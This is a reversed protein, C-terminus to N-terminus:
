KEEKIPCTFGGTIKGYAKQMIERLEAKRNEEVIFSDHIALIPIERSTFDKVVELAIRSDMRMLEGGIRKCFHQAIQPHAVKFKEVLEATSTGIAKLTLYLNYDEHLTHNGVSVAIRLSDSNILALLLHKAFPRLGPYDQIIARYPDDDYQIGELTYLLRPQMGSFDLEVTKQQNIRIQRREEKELSQYGGKSNYLRGGEKFSCNNFIAYLDTNLKIFGKPSKMQVIAKRNVINATRLIERIQITEPTDKYPIDKKQQDRLIVLELPKIDIYDFPTFYENLKQTPWIRTMRGGRPSHYFGSRSIWGGKEMKKILELTFYSAKTYRSPLYDNRNLSIAIPKRTVLLKSKNALLNACLIEIDNKKQKWNRRRQRNDQMLEELLLNARKVAEDEALARGHDFTDNNNLWAPTAIQDLGREYAILWVREALSIQLDPYKTRPM